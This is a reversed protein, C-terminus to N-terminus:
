TIVHDVACFYSNIVLLDSVKNGRQSWRPLRAAGQESSTKTQRRLANQAAGWKRMDAKCDRSKGGIVHTKKSNNRNENGETQEKENNWRKHLYADLFFFVCLSIKHRTEFGEQNKPCMRGFIVRFRQGKSVLHNIVITIKCTADVFGLLGCLQQERGTGTRSANCDLRDCVFLIIFCIM